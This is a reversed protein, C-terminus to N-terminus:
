GKIYPSSSDTRPSISGICTENCKEAAFETDSPKSKLLALDCQLECRGLLAHASTEAFRNAAWSSTNEQTQGSNRFPIAEWARPLVWSPARLPLTPPPRAIRVGPSPSFTTVPFRWIDPTRRLWIAM